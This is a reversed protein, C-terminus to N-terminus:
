SNNGPESGNTRQRQDLSTLYTTILVKFKQFVEEIAVIGPLMRDWELQVGYGHHVLHRFKRFSTLSAKFEKDFLLPLPPTPPDSFMNFLDIHWTDGMPIPIGYFRCIRKLINEVGGYFQSLFAGAATKERVTPRKGILDRQIALLEYVTDQMLNLEIDVEDRLDNLKM